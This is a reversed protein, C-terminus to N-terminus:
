LNAVEGSLESILRKVTNKLSEVRDPITDLDKENNLDSEIGQAFSSTEKAGMFTLQPKISHISVKLSQWDKNALHEDIKELLGPINKLFMNIYKEMKAKDGGTFDKLFDLNSIRDM